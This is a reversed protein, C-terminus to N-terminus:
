TASPKVSAIAHYTALTVYHSDWSKRTGFKRIGLGMDLIMKKTVSSQTKQECLNGNAIAAFAAPNSTATM